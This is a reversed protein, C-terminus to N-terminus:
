NVRYSFLSVNLLIESRIEPLTLRSPCRPLTARAVFCRPVIPNRASQLIAHFTRLRSYQIVLFGIRLKAPNEAAHGGRM